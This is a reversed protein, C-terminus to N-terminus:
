GNRSKLSAVSLSIFVTVSSILVVVSSLRILGSEFEPMYSGWSFLTVIRSVAAPLRSLIAEQSFISNVILIMSALLFAIVSSSTLSSAFVGVSCYVAALLFLGIYGGIVVGLDPKGLLMILICVPFTTLIFLWIPFLAGFFKAAVLKLESIPNSLLIEWTGNKKEDALSGMCFAPVFLALLFSLTSLLPELEAQDVVFFDNFFLWVSIGILLFAFVYAAPSYIYSKIEKKLLNLFM